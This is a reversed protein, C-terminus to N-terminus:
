CTEKTKLQFNEIIRENYIAIQIRKKYWFDDNILLFNKNMPLDQFIIGDIDEFVNRERFFNNIDKLTPKIGTKKIFKKATREILKLWWKYDDEEFVTNLVNETNINSVYIMYYGQACKSKVGWWHADEISEWFYYGDGLWAKDSICKIPANLIEGRDEQTHYYKNENM